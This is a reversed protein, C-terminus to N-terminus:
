GHRGKKRPSKDVFVKRMQDAFEDTGSAIATWVSQAVNPASFLIPQGMNMTELLRLKNMKMYKEQAQVTPPQDFPGFADFAALMQLIREQTDAEDSCIFYREARLVGSVYLAVHLLIVKVYNRM